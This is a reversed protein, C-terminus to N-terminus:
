HDELFALSSFGTSGKLNIHAVRNRVHQCPQPIRHRGMVFRHVHLIGPNALADGLHELFFPVDRVVRHQVVAGLLPQDADGDLVGGGALLHQTFQLADPRLLSPVPLESEFGLSGVGINFEGAGLRVNFLVSQGSVGGSGPTAACSSCLPKVNVVKASSSGSDGDMSALTLTVDQLNRHVTINRTFTQFAPTYGDDPGDKSKGLYYQNLLILDEQDTSTDTEACVTIEIDVPCNGGGPNSIGGSVSRSGSSTGLVQLNLLGSFDDFYSNCLQAVAPTAWFLFIALAAVVGIRTRKMRTNRWCSM